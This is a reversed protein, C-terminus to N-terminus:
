REGGLAARAEAQLDGPLADLTMSQSRQLARVYAVVAWRERVDLEPAYSPMFGAGGTVTAYLRDDTFGVI